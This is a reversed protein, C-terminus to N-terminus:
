DYYFGLGYVLGLNEWGSSTPNPGILELASMGPLLIMVIVFAALWIGSLEVNLLHAYLLGGSVLMLGIQLHIRTVKLRIVVQGDYTLALTTFVVLLLYVTLSTYNSHSVIVFILAVLSALILNSVVPLNSELQSM